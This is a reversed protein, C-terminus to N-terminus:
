LSASGLNLLTVTGALVNVNVNFERVTATAVTATGSVTVGSGATVTATQGTSDNLCYIRFNFQGDQPITTPLAGIIQAAAPTTLTFGGGPSGSVDWVGQIFQAATLVPTTSSGIAVAVVGPAYMQNANAMYGSMGFNSSNDPTLVNAAGLTRGPYSTTNVGPFFYNKLFKM